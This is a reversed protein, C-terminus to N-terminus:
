GMGLVLDVAVTLRRWEAAEVKLQRRGDRTLEYYRDRICM